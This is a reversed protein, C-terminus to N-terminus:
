KKIRLAEELEYTLKNIDQEFVSAKPMIVLNLGRPLNQYILRSAYAIIRKVSSRDHAKPFISSSIAIGILPSPNQGLRFFLKFHPTDKKQGQSVWQFDTKLNLRAKKPLM